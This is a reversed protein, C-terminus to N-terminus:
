DYDMAIVMGDSYTMEVVHESVESGTASIAARVPKLLLVWKEAYKLFSNFIVGDSNLFLKLFLM